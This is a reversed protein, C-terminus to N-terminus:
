EESRIEEELAIRIQDVSIEVIARRGIVVKKVERKSVKGYLWAAVLGYEVNKTTELIFQLIETMGVAKRALIGRLQITGNGPIEKIMGSTMSRTDFLDFPLQRDHTEIEVPIKM